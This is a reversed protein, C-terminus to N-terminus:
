GCRALIMTLTTKASYKDNSTYFFLRGNQSKLDFSRYTIEVEDDGLEPAEIKVRGTVHNNNKIEVYTPTYSTIDEGYSVDVIGTSDITVNSAVEYYNVDGTDCFHKIQKDTLPRKASYAVWEGWFRSPLSYEEADGDYGYDQAFTVTSTITTLALLSSILLKKM